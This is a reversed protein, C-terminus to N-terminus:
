RRGATLYPTLGWDGSGCTARYRAPTPAGQEELAGTTSAQGEIWARLEQVTELDREAISM